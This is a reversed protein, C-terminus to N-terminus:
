AGVPVTVRRVSQRRPAVALRDYRTVYAPLTDLKALYANFLTNYESQSITGKIYDVEFGTALYSTPYVIPEVYPYILGRVAELQTRTTAAAIQALYGPVVPSTAPKKPRALWWITGGAALLGVGAVVALARNDQTDPM